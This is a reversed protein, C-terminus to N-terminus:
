LGADGARDGGLIIFWQDNLDGRLAHSEGPSLHPPAVRTTLLRRGFAAVTPWRVRIVVVRLRQLWRVNRVDVSERM